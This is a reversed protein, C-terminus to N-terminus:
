YANYDLMPLLLSNNDHHSSSCLSIIEELTGSMTNSTKYKHDYAMCYDNNNVMQEEAPKMLPKTEAFSTQPFDELELPPYPLHYHMCTYMQQEMEQLLM